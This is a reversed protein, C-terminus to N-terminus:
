PAVPSGAPAPPGTRRRRLWVVLAVLGGALLAPFAWGVALAVSRGAVVLNHWALRVSKAVVGQAVPSRHRKKVPAAAKPSVSVTLTAFTARDYLSSQQASLEEVQQEVGFLENQVTLIDPISGAQQVLTRLAAEEAQLNAIRAAINVVEGTVDQGQESQSQVKGLGAVAAVLSTFEASPVRLTLTETPSQRELAVSKSSAIFGGKGAVLMSIRDFTSSMKDKAVVLAVSGTRIISASEISVAQGVASPQGGSGGLSRPPLTAPLASAGPASGPIAGQGSAAVGGAEHATPTAASKAVPTQGAGLHFLPSHAAGTSTGTLEARLGLGLLVLVFALGIVTTVKAYRRV